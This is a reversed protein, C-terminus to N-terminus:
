TIWRMLQDVTLAVIGFMLHAMVKVPGRVYISRGGFEDKIRANAREVTSRIKYRVAEHPAFPIKEGRRPNHDVLPVHGLSRSYDRLLPSCYGADALDYLSTVRGDSMRGLPIYVQSDHVSASTLIASIPIGGDAVDWHLKYGVWGRKFGQADQKTGTDCARPLDSLMETITTMQLQREIRTPSPAVRAEGRKPRGRRAPKPAVETVTVADQHKRAPRERAEIASSDRSLHGILQDSLHRSILAAHVRQPLELQAFEAFARSFTAADPLKRFLDFGCLRRLSRDQQLRAILAETTPLNLVAKAVFARALAARDRQPRGTMRRLDPLHEEVRAVELTRILQQLKRTVTEGLQREIEPFLGGQIAFWAQSLRHSFTNNM